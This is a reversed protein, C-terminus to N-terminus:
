GPDGSRQACGQGHQCSGEEPTDVQSFECAFRESAVIYDCIPVLAINGQNHTDADVVTTIGIDHAWKAVSLALSAQHGDFLVVKHAPWQSTSM